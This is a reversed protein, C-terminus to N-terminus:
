VGEHCRVFPLPPADEVDQPTIGHVREAQHWSAHREPKVLENLLVSGDGGILAVQLVEDARVSVGTTETDLCVVAEDPISAVWAYGSTAQESM